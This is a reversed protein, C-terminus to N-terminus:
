RKRCHARLLAPRAEGGAASLAPRQIRRRHILGATAATVKLDDALAACTLLTKVLPKANNLLNGTIFAVIKDLVQEFLRRRLPHHTM